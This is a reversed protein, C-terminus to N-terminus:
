ESLSINFCSNLVHGYSSCTRMFFSLTLFNFRTKMHRQSFFSHFQQNKGQMKPQQNSSLYCHLTFSWPSVSSGDKKCSLKRFTSFLSFNKNVAFYECLQLFCKSVFKGLIHPQSILSSAAPVIEQFQRQFHIM